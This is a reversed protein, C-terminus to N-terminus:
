KLSNLYNKFDNQFFDGTLEIYAKSKTVLVMQGMPDSSNFNYERLTLIGRAIRLFKVYLDLMTEPVPVDAIQNLFAELRNGLDSFYETDSSSGSFSTLHSVLDDSFASFDATTALTSLKFPANNVFIYAVQQLYRLADKAEAEKRKSDSLKSYDQKLIKIQSKDVAPLTDFTITDGMNKTLQEDVFTNIDATSVSQGEKSSLYATLNQLYDDTLTTTKSTETTSQGSPISTNKGTEIKDGPAPKLPDYGSKVEIGDSYGDSDTDANSPNTGYLKEEANTLGDCDSDIAKNCANEESTNKSDAKAYTLYNFCALFLCATILLFQKIYKIKIYM